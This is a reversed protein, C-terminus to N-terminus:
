MSTPSLSTASSSTQARAPAPGPPADRGRRLAVGAGLLIWALPDELFAAYLLTHVVLAAFAAAVGARAASESAGPLLLRFAAVLLAVYAALGVIGQEAAVTVPITHSASVAAASRAEGHRRYQVAFSGSGWGAVPREAFLQVGGSVLDSRGSTAKRLSSGGALAAAALAVVAGAVLVPAGRRLLRDPAGRLAALAAVGVILSLMSSESRTTLLGLWLVALVAAAAPVARPRRSWLAATLVGIMAVILFRGYVNPDFFVSNVRFYTTYRNGAILKENLWVTGTALQVFGIACFVLALATMTALCARLLRPTWELEALLKFLLAFPAYFFVIQELAKAFDASYAAQVAYLLTFGLLAVELGTPRRTGGAGGRLDRAASALAGAGIVAYLPVLLNVTDGSVSLPIRFPMAAIAAVAVLAPRRSAVAAAAALAALAVVAGIATLVPRGTLADLRESTSLDDILLAPTLVLAALTAGGRARRSPALVAAGTCAVVAVVGASELAPM